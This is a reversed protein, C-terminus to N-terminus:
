SLDEERGEFLLKRAAFYLLFGVVATAVVVLLPLWLEWM